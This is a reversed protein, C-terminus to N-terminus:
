EDQAYQSCYGDADFTYDTGDINKTTDRFYTGKETRYRWGTDDKKWGACNLGEKVYTNTGLAEWTEDDQFHWWESVLDGFGANLMYDALLDANENNYYTASHWSLDHMNTQMELDQGSSLKELTLDVAIGRNHASVTRALFSSLGYQNNTMVYQWTQEGKFSQGNETKETTNETEPIVQNMLASMTKYLYRSAENPRFADYIRLGYGDRRVTEAVQRLKRACPYLYPVLYEGETLCIDEYGEIVMDTMGPTDYEHVKFISRYSNKIDYDCLDGLYEALDIMCFNEDVYGCQGQWRVRFFGNESELVCLAQGVPVTGIEGGDYPDAYLKLDTLPWITCYLPTIAVRFSVEYPDTLFKGAKREEETNYSVVRFREQNGSHLMGLDYSTDEQGLVALTKWSDNKWQQVENFAGGVSSWNLAYRREGIKEYTLDLQGFLEERGVVVPDSMASYYTSGARLMTRVAISVSDQQKLIDFNEAAYLCITDAYSEGVTQWNGEGDLVCVEYGYDGTNSASLYVSKDVEDVEGNLSPRPLEPPEATIELPYGEKEGSFGLLNKTQRIPLIRLRVEQGSAVGDLIADGKSFTGLSVYDGEAESFVDIRCNAINLQEAWGMKLTGDELCFELAEPPMVPKAGAPQLLIGAAFALGFALLIGIIILLKKM